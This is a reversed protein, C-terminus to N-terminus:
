ALRLTFVTINTTFDCEVYLVVPLLKSSTFFLTYLTRNQEQRDEIQPKSANQVVNRWEQINEVLRLLEKMALGRWTRINDMWRMNPRGRARGGPM